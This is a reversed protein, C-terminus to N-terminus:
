NGEANMYIKKNTSKFSKTTVRFKAILDSFGDYRDEAFNM